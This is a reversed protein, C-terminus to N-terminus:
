RLPPPRGLLRSNCSLARHRRSSLALLRTRSAGSGLPSRTHLEAREQKGVAAIRRPVARHDVLRDALRHQGIREADVDDPQGLVMEVADGDIGIRDPDGAHERSRQLMGPDAERDHLGRQVVRDTEGLLDGEEVLHQLALQDDPEAAAAREVYVVVLAETEVVALGLVAELLGLRDHELGPGAALEGMLAPEPLQLHRHQPRRRVRPRVRDDDAAGRGIFREDLQRALALGPHHVHLREFGRAPTDLEIALCHEGGAEVLLRDGGVEGRAPHPPVNEDRRGVGLGLADAHRQEVPHGAVAGLHAVAIGRHALPDDRAIIEGAHPLSAALPQDVARRSPDGLIERREVPEADAPDDISEPQARHRVLYGRRAEIQEHAFHRRVEAGRRRFEAFRCFLQAGNIKNAKQSLGSYRESIRPFGHLKRRNVPSPVTAPPDLHRLIPASRTIECLVALLGAFGAPLAALVAVAAARDRFVAVLRALAAAALAASASIERFVALLRALGAPLAAAALNRLRARLSPRTALDAGKATLHPSGNAPHGPMFNPSNPPARARPPGAPSLSPYWSKM